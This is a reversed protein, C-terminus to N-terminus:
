LTPRAGSPVAGVAALGRYLLTGGVIAMPVFFCNLVPIWLIAYIAAGFGLALGLRRRVVLRVESFPILHRAMPGALYEAGMWLATWLGGLVSWAISGVGPVFNALLLLAHGALLVSIRALTHRLSMWTSHLLRSFSFPPAQFGGCAEEAAESIPDQLPVLALLPAVNAAVVVWLVFALFVLITWLGGGFWSEPKLWFRAVVDDAYTWGVALIVLLGALTVLASVASLAFLKRNALILQLGKFPLTLGTWFDRLSASPSLSPVYSQGALTVSVREVTAFRHM